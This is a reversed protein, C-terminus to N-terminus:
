CMIHPSARLCTPIFGCGIVPCCTPVEGIPLTLEGRKVRVDVKPGALDFAPGDAYLGASALICFLLLQMCRRM